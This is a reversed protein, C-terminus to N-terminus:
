RMSEALRIAQERTPAGEIRLTIDGEEWLLVNGALRLREERIDGSPDRYLFTHPQGEIWFGPSGKIQVQELRSDPGITKRFLIENLDGRFQIILVGVGPDLTAPWGPRPYYVLSVRGGNPIYGVYVEDPDALDALHPLKVQFLLRDNAEALSRPAGLGLRQGIPAPTAAPEPTATPPIFPLMPAQRIDIGRVGLRDAVAQRLEPSVALALGALLLLTVGVYALRRPAFWRSWATPQPRALLRSRAAAALDPTPPYDIHRGLDFLARDLPTEPRNREIM